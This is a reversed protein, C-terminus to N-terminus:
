EECDKGKNNTQKFKFLEIFFINVLYIHSNHLTYLFYHLENWVSNSLKTMLHFHQSFWIFFM